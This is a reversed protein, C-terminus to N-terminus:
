EGDSCACGLNDSFLDSMMYCRPGECWHNTSKITSVLLGVHLVRNMELRGISVGSSSILYYKGRLTSTLAHSLLIVGHAKDFEIVDRECRFCHLLDM